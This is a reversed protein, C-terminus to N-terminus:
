NQVYLAARTYNTTTILNGYNDCGLYRLKFTLFPVGFRNDTKFGAFRFFGGNYLWLQENDSQVVNGSSDSTLYAGSDLDRIGWLIANRELKYSGANIGGFDLRVERSLPVLLKRESQPLAKLIADAMIKHGDYNPHTDLPQDNLLANKMENPAFTKSVEFVDAYICGYQAAWLALQVNEAKTAATVAEGIKLEENGELYVNVFPNYAGVLVITAQPNLEKLKEIIAPYGNMFYDLGMKIMRLLTDAAIKLAEKSDLGEDIAALYDNRARQFPITAVDNSGLALFILESETIRETVDGIAANRGQAVDDLRKWSTAGPTCDLYEKALEMDGDAIRDQMGLMFMTMAINCGTFALSCYPQAGVANAVIDSYSGEAPGFSVCTPLGYACTISDGFVLMKDYQKVNDATAAFAPASIGLMMTFALLLVLVKKAKKM